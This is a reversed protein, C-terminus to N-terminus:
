KTDLLEELTTKGDSNELLTQCEMYWDIASTIVEVITIDQAVAYSKIKKHRDLSLKLLTKKVKEEPIVTDEKKSTETGAVAVAKQSKPAVNEGKQQQQGGGVLGALGRGTSDFKKGM